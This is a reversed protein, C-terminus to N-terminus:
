DFHVSTQAMFDVTAAVISFNLLSNTICPINTIILLPYTWVTQVETFNLMYECSVKGWITLSFMSNANWLRLLSSLPCFFLFLFFPVSLNFNVPEYKCESSSQLWYSTRWRAKWGALIWTANRSENVNTQVLFQFFGVVCECPFMLHFFVVTFFSFKFGTKLINLRKIWPKMQKTQAPLYPVSVVVEVMDTQWSM